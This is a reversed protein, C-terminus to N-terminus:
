FLVLINSIYILTHQLEVQVLFYFKVSTNVNNGYTVILPNTGSNAIAFMPYNSRTHSQGFNLTYVGTSNRTCTM